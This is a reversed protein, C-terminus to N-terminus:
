TFFRTLMSHWWDQFGLSGCSSLWTQSWPWWLSWGKYGLNAKTPFFLLLSSVNWACSIDSHASSRRCLVQAVVSKRQRTMCSCIGFMLVGLALILTILGNFTDLCWHWKIIVIVTIAGIITVHCCACLVVAGANCGFLNCCDVILQYPCLLLQLWVTSPWCSSLNM